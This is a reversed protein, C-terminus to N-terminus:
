NIYEPSPVQAPDTRGVTPACTFNAENNTDGTGKYRAVNPYVCLPRTMLVPQTDDDNTYKTAVVRQPAVGSEVWQQLARFVDHGADPKLPGPIITSTGYPQGFANPGPGGSCHYMGPVMFLRYYSQVAKTASNTSGGQAAVLREYYNIGDQPSALPDSWGHYALIKGGRGKFASLDTSNANLIPALVSDLTQMDTDFNFNLYTFTPGFVWKFLSGFPTEVQTDLNAWGGTTPPESGYPLGPFIQRGTVPNRPGQYKARATAVQDATLCIGDPAGTCQMSAPDWDCARPDTLFPDGAVGGSKVACQKASAAAMARTQDTSFFLALPTKHAWQYGWLAATHDHTRNNAADGILIGDYDAPYRQASMHGQQGGTSCGTFYSYTPPAAYYTKILQKAAVTMLHTARSGWDIWKQPHGILADANTTYSPATGMDTTAVAFGQQLGTIMTGLGQQITGAYGGNGIGQFKGNWTTVPLWLEVNIFSDTTPTMVLSVKCFSPVNTYTVGNAATYNPGPVTVSGTVTGGSLGVDLVTLNECTGAQAAGAALLALAAATTVVPRRLTPLRM